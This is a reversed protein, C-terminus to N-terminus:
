LGHTSLHTGSSLARDVAAMKDDLANHSLPPTSQPSIATTSESSSFKSILSPFKWRIEAMQEEPLLTELDPFEERVCAALLKHVIGVRPKGGNADGVSYSVLGGLQRLARAVTACEAGILDALDTATQRYIGSALASLVLGLADLDVNPWRSYELMILELLRGFRTGSPRPALAQITEITIGSTQMQFYHEAVVLWAFNCNSLHCLVQAAEEISGTNHNFQNANLLRVCYNYTDSLRLNDPANLVVTETPSFASAIQNSEKSSVILRMSSPMNSLWFSLMDIISDHHKDQIELDIVVVILETIPDLCSLLECILIQFIRNSDNEAIFFQDEELRKIVETAYDYSLLCLNFVLAKVIKKDDASDSLENNCFMMAGLQNKSQFHGAIVTASSSKGSGSEGGILAVKKSLPLEAELQTIYEKNLLPKDNKCHKVFDDEMSKKYLGLLPELKQVQASSAERKKGPTGLEKM